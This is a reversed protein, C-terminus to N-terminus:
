SANTLAHNAGKGLLFALAAIALFFLSGSFFLGWRIQEFGTLASYALASILPFVMVIAVGIGILYLVCGLRTMM